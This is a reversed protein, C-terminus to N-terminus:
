SSRPAPCAPSRRSPRPCRCRGQHLHGGAPQAAQGPQGGRPHRDHDPRRGPHGGQVGPQGQDADGGPASRHRQGQPDPHRRRPLPRRDGSGDEKEPGPRHLDHVSRPAQLAHTALDPRHGQPQGPGRAQGPSAPRRGAAHAAGVGEPRWCKQAANRDERPGERGGASVHRSHGLRGPRNVKVKKVYGKAIIKVAEMVKEAFDMAEARKLKTGALIRDREAVFKDLDIKGDLLAQYQKRLNRQAELRPMNELLTKGEEAYEAPVKGDKVLQAFKDLREKVKAAVAPNATLAFHSGRGGLAIFYQEREEKSKGHTRVLERMEKELYETLEDVTVLGDPEYGDKDAAGQLGKLVASAFVGHDKLDLSRKLGNTALFLVRGPKASEEESGDDGLLEKYPNSGLTPEAVKKDNTTFGKFDVDLFVCFRQSKLKKLADSVELDAVANKSRGEFTSDSAFYCRHDGVPGGEGFFGFLVLDNSKANDAVWRLAKLINARTAPESGPVKASDGLLLRSHEADVGLYKKDTFLQYLAKADDEAHPRPKIQKDAYNSIGVMVVYPQHAKADAAKPQEACLPLALLGLTLVAGLWRSLMARTM